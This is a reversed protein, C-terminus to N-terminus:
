LRVRKTKHLRQRHSHVIIIIIINKKMSMTSPACIPLKKHCKFWRFGYIAGKMMIAKKKSSHNSYTDRFFFLEM